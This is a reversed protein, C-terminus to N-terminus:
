NKQLKGLKRNKKKMKSKDVGKARQCLTGWRLPGLLGRSRWRRLSTVNASVHWGRPFSSSCLLSSYRCRSSTPFTLTLPIAPPLPPITWDTPAPNAILCTPTILGAASVRWKPAAGSSAQSERAAILLKTRVDWLCVLGWSTRFPRHSNIQMPTVSPSPFKEARLNENFKLSTGSAVDFSTTSNFISISLTM